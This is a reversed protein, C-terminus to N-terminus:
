TSFAAALLTGQHNVSYEQLAVTGDSRLTNPDLLVAPPGDLSTRSYLVPQNKLGANRRYFYRGGAQFPLGWKEYDYAATLAERFRARTDCTELLTDTLKNEAAIVSHPVLPTTPRRPAPRATPRPVPKGVCSQDLPHAAPGRGAARGGAM